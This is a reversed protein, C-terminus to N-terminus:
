AAEDMWKKLTGFDRKLAAANAPVGQDGAYEVHVSIPGAFSSQQLLKFFKPDLQGEGLPVHESKHGKWRFDKVSVATTHPQMINWAAPWAEGGEVLAHRIDFVCGIEAPPLDGILRELDWSLAGVMDAGCHNQYVASIRLERNLAALEQFVPELAALQPVIPRKLDYRCFGLRYKKIGV